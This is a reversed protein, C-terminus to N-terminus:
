HGPRTIINMQIIDDTIDRLSQMADRWGDEYGDSYNRVAFDVGESLDLYHDTLYDIQCIQMASIINGIM